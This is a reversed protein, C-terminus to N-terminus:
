RSLGGRVSAVYAAIRAKRALEVAQTVVLCQELEADTYQFIRQSRRGLDEWTGKSASSMVRPYQEAAIFIAAKWAFDRQTLLTDVESQTGRSGYLVVILDCEEAQLLEADLPNWDGDPPQLEESFSAQHGDRRLAERIECRKRYEISDDEAPGWVLIALPYTAAEEYRKQVRDWPTLENEDADASM